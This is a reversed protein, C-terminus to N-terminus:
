SPSRTYFHKLNVLAGGLRVDFASEQHRGFLIVRINVLGFFSGLLECVDVLGIFGKTVLLLPLYVIGRSHGTIFLVIM